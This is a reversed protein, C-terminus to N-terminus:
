VESQRQEGRQWGALLELSRVHLQWLTRTSVFGKRRGANRSRFGVPKEEPNHSENCGKLQGPRIDNEGLLYPSTIPPQIMFTQLVVAAEWSASGKGALPELFNADEEVAEGLSEM